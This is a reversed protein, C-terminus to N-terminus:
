GDVEGFELLFVAFRDCYYCPAWSLFLISSEQSDQKQGVVHGNGGGGVIRHDDGSVRRAVMMCAFWVWMCACTSLLM